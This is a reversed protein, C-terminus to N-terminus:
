LTKPTKTFQGVNRHYQVIEKYKTNHNEYYIEYHVIKHLSKPFKCSNITIRCAHDNVIFLENFKVDQLSCAYRKGFTIVNLSPPMIVKCLDQNFSMGFSLVNLSQPLSNIVQNFCTGFILTKINDPFIIDSITNDYFGGLILTNVSNHIVIDMMDNQANDWIYKM